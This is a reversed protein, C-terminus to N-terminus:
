SRVSPTLSSSITRVINLSDLFFTAVRVPHERHHLRRFVGNLVALKNNECSNLFPLNARKLHRIIRKDATLFEKPFYVELILAELIDHFYWFMIKEEQSKFLAPQILGKLFATYDFMKAILLRDEVSPYVIPIQILDDKFIKFSGDSRLNSNELLWFSVLSSGLLASLYSSNFRRSFVAGSSIKGYFDTPDNLDVFAFPSATPVGRLPFVERRFSIKDVIDCRDSNLWIESRRLRLQGLQSILKLLEIKNLQTTTDKEISLM